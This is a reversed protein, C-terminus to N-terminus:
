RPMGGERDEEQEQWPPPRLGARIANISQRLTPFGTTDDGNWYLQKGSGTRVMGLSALYDIVEPEPSKIQIQGKNRTIRDPLPRGTTTDFLQTVWGVAAVKLSEGASPVAPVFRPSDPLQLPHTPPTYELQRPRLVEVRAAETQAVYQLHHLQRATKQKQGNTIIETLTGSLTLIVFSGFLVFFTVGSLVAVTVSQRDYIMAAIVIVTVLVDAAIAGIALWDPPLQTTRADQAVQEYNRFQKSQM